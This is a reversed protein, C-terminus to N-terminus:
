RKAARAIRSKDAQWQFRFERSATNSVNFNRDFYGQPGATLQALPKWKGRRSSRSEVTVQAGEGAPRVAGFIEVKSGSLRRVYFPLRFADYVGSKKRGNEFKIGSQFGAHRNPGSKAVPDDTFPYQSWAGIRPNKFAIWEAQGLYEPVKKIPTQVPDPPDSQIGFETSWLAQRERSAFRKKRTLTDLARTMRSLQGISVEDRNPLNVSPGGAFTYPHHAVGTGPLPRFNNCGRKRASRGTYARYRKDVCAVERLFELPRRRKGRSAGFPVLEGYLLTDAGHGSASLGDSGAYLLKRYIEPADAQPSLWSVLNPENWISWITVRPLPNPDFYDGDTPTFSGSYRKGVAQVFQGFLAPDPRHVGTPLGKPSPESAWTPAHGGLMLYVNMGRQKTARVIGDYLRWDTADYAAPDTPDAPKTAPATDRWDVRVKVIDVGLAKWEDLTEDRRNGDSGLLQADDQLITPQDRSASAQTAAALLACAALAFAFMMRIPSKV